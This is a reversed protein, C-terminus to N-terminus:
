VKLKKFLWRDKVSVTLHFLLLARLIETITISKDANRLTQSISSWELSVLIM